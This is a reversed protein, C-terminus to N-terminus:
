VITLERHLLHREHALRRAPPDELLSQQEARRIQLNAAVAYSLELGGEPIPVDREAQRALRRLVQVYQTFEERVLALLRDPVDPQGEDLLEVDGVAYPRSDDISRIRFRREGVTALHLTGDSRKDVQTIRALTGVDHPVAPGGVEAGSRILVIGLAGDEELCRKVLLKYREEFVRLPLPVGPFLVTHLPFLPLHRTTQM